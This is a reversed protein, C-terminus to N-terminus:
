SQSKSPSRRGSNRPRKAVAAMNATDPKVVVDSTRTTPKRRVIIPISAGSIGPISIEGQYRVGAVLGRSIKASVKAVVQEGPALTIIGPEFRLVSPIEQGDPDILPGVAVHTSVEKALKNEVVFLGFARTGAEGELVMAAPSPVLVPASPTSTVSSAEQTIDTSIIQPGIESVASVLLDLSRAALESLLATYRVNADLARGWAKTLRTVENM